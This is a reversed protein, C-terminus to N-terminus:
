RLRDLAKALGKLSWFGESLKRIRELDKFAMPQNLLGLIRTKFGKFRSQFGELKNLACTLGDM